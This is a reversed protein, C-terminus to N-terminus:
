RATTPATILRTTISPPRMMASTETHIRPTSM